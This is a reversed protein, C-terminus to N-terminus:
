IRCLTLVIYVLGWAHGSYSFRGLGPYRICLFGLRPVFHALWGMFLVGSDICISEWGGYCMEFVLQDDWIFM